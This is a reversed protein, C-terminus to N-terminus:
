FAALTRGNRLINQTSFNEITHFINMEKGKADKIKATTSLIIM